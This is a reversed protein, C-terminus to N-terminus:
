QAMGSTDMMNSTDQISDVPVVVSDNKIKMDEPIADEMPNEDLPDPLNRDTDNDASNCSFLFLLCISFLYKM